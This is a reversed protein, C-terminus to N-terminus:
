VLEELVNDIAEFVSGLEQLSEYKSKFWELERLAKQLLVGKKEDDSYIVSINDYCEDTTQFYARVLAPKSEESEQTTTVTISRIMYRAQDERYKEAAISDDWEFENHLPADDPRNADVLNHPTLGVTRELEEFMAGATEASAKIRTAPKWKYIM